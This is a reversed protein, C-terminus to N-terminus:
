QTCYTYVDTDIYVYYRPGHLASFRNNFYRIERKGALLLVVYGLRYQICNTRLVRFRNLKCKWACYVAAIINEAIEVLLIRRSFTVSEEHVRRIERIRLFM